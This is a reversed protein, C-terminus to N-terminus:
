GFIEEANEPLAIGTSAFAEEYHRWVPIAPSNNKGKARASIIKWASKEGIGNIAELQKQSCTNIDLGVEVGSISRM